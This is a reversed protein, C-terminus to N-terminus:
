QWGLEMDFPSKQFNNSRLLKFSLGQPNETTEVNSGKFKMQGLDYSVFGLFKNIKGEIFIQNKLYSEIDTPNSNGLNVKYGTYNGIAVNNKSNGYFKQTDLFVEIYGNSDPDILIEFGPKLLINNGANYVFEFYGNYYFNSISKTNGTFTDIEEGEQYGFQGFSTRIAFRNVKKSGENLASNTFFDNDNDIREFKYGNLWDFTKDAEPISYQLAINANEFDYEGNTGANNVNPDNILTSYDFSFDTNNLITM